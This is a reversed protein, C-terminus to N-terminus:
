KEVINDDYSIYDSMSGVYMKANYGLEDLLIFNIAAEIASGCYTIIEKGKYKSFNQNVVDLDKVTGDENINFHWPINIAGPIHGPKSYLPEFEGTYRNNDRSDVLIIGDNNLNSKVYNVDCYLSTNTSKNYSGINKTNSLIDCSTPLGLSKWTVLGGNLVFVNKYGMYKLQFWARPSSYIKEDYVVITSDLNVGMNALKNGLTNVDALPRAGGHINGKGCIDTNIDLYIATPIHEKKYLEYGKNVDFLDFRCDFIFFDHENIHENIFTCDVFNKM